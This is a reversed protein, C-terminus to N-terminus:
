RNAKPTEGRADQYPSAATPVTWNHNLQWSDKLFKPSSTYSTYTIKFQLRGSEKVLYKTAELDDYIEGAELRKV